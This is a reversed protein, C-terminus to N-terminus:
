SPPELGRRLLGAKDYVADILRMTAVADTAPTLNPEGRLVAGAFARLQYVYTPLQSCQQV